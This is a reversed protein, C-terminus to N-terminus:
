LGLYKEENDFWCAIWDNYSYGVKITENTTIRILDEECLLGLENKQNYRFGKCELDNACAIAVSYISGFIPKYFSSCYGSTCSYKEVSFIITYLLISEKHTVM